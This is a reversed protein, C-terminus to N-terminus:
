ETKVNAKKTRFKYLLADCFIDPRKQLLARYFLSYEAFSVWLKLTGVLRLWGMYRALARNIRLLTRCIHLLTRYIRLLTWCIHLLVMIICMALVHYPTAVILLSRLIVPRNQLFARYFLRYEAFYVQLKLSDVLRLWGMIIVDCSCSLVCRLFFLRSPFPSLCVPFPIEKTSLYGGFLIASATVHRPSLSHSLSHIHTSLSLSYTDQSYSCEPQVEEVLLFSCKRFLFIVISSFCTLKNPIASGSCM